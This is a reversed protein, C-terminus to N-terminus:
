GDITFLTNSIIEALTRPDGDPTKIQKSLIAGEAAAARILRLEAAVIGLREDVLKGLLIERMMEVVHVPVPRVNRVRGRM